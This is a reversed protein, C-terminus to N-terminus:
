IARLGLREFLRDDRDADPNDTTLLREGYFMSNAGAMFCLAQLEDSMQERGASLRVYSKPMTIRAAAITRVFEFPDLAGAGAMPTGPIQVLNNIPVSEPPTPLNALQAILAARQARSEGMGVIGGSCVNIGAARVEDLTDLRDQMTHTTIVQGYFEPATDLNHNYYDLGAEALREAQGDKLMGLTVCTQLGLKKVERVMDLVPELEKDKPGRWAAGMCFRSAGKAKAARANELVEDIPMLRERELGTDYRASQSCYGCDESCGGTKISLLTSRQVANPDFNERHVLQARHVLDFFPLEFLAQVETVSWRQREIPQPTTSNRELTASTTTM